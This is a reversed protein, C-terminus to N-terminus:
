RRVVVLSVLPDGRRSAPPWESQAERDFALVAFGPYLRVGGTCKGAHRRPIPAAVIIDDDPGRPNRRDKHSGPVIWTGGSNEDTDTLYFIMVLCMPIDPFPRRICGANANPDNGGYAALDHPWDTHWERKHAGRMRKFQDSGEKDIFAKDSRVFRLHLQSIRLHDDLVRRALATIVPNAMHPAFQPMWIIENPSKPPHGVRRVRRLEVNNAAAKGNLLEEANAGEEAFLDEIGKRNRENTAQAGIVEKRIADVEDPPIVHDVVCFGYRELSDACGSVVEELPLASADFAFARTRALEASVAVPDSTREALLDRTEGLERQLREVNSQLETLNM